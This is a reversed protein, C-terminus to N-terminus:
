SRVEKPAPEFGALDSAAATDLLWAVSGEVPDVSQAPWREPERPGELVAAVAPAKREGTVLFLVDRAANIAPPTLTIRDVIPPQMATESSRVAVALRDREAVADSGPFLSATHGDAGIGLLVLDLRPLSGPEPSLVERMEREYRAAAREPDPEEGRMRHVREAPVGVAELLTARALRYNSDPHDPPVCREDAWFLRTSEWAVASRLEPRALAEFLPEPTSGGSLAVAFRERAAVAARGAEVFRRAAREYLSDRGACVVIEPGRRM